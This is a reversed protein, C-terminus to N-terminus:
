PTPGPGPRFWGDRPWLHQAIRERVPEALLSGALPAPSPAAVLLLGACLYAAASAVPGRRSWLKLASGLSRRSRAGLLNLAALEDALLHSLYGLAVSLGALWAGFAEAGFGHHALAATSAGAVLVAPLSHLMGRHHTSRGLLAALATRTVLFVALGLLALEAVTPFRPSLLYLALFATALSATAYVARAPASGDADLDPLVAGLTGLAFCLLSERPGALGALLATLGWAGGVGLGVVLHTRFAALSAV